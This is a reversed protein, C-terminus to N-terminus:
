CGFRFMVLFEWIMYPGHAEFVDDDDGAHVIVGGRVTVTGSLNSSHWLELM